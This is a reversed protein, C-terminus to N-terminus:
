ISDPDIRGARRGLLKDIAAQLHCCATTEDARELADMAERMLVLALARQLTPDAIATCDGDPEAPLLIVAREPKSM